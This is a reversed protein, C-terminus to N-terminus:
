TPSATGSDRSAPPTLTVRLGKIQEELLAVAHEARRARRRQGIASVWMVLAGFIFAVVMAGLIVVSAPLELSFDTPWLGLTLPAKNSLLFLILLLLFPAAILWRVWRM